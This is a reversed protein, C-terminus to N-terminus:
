LYVKQTDLMSTAGSYVWVSGLTRGYGSYVQSIKCKEGGAQAGILLGNWGAWIGPGTGDAYIDVLWGTTGQDFGPNTLPIPTAAQSVGATVWVNDIYLSGTVGSNTPNISVVQVALITGTAYFSIQMPKWGWIDLGGAGPQVVHNGTASITTSSDLEQLYLYVKQQKATESINTYVRAAATYWGARPVSFVQSIKGKQGPIQTIAISEQVWSEDVWWLTGASIGDGYKEFLWHTTDSSSTFDGYSNLVSLPAIALKSVYADYPSGNFSLSFAGPTIPFETSGTYGTLYVNGSTDIAISYGEDDRSGGLYTSYDLGTGTRNLKSVFIDRHFLVSRHYTTDWANLTTPFDPSETFGTIYANGTSDVAIKYAIDMDNGGLFTSYVLNTGTPNLKTVFIDEYGNTCTDWAGFTTPFDPSNANGTIYAYGAADIVIDFAEDYNNGGLYTSYVLATGSPNLKTVFANKPGSLSTDWAGFTTPFDNSDTEGTIYINGSTDIANGWAIDNSSGGLYTSYILGTGTSNLETVFVDDYGDLNTDWAGITTPFDTSATVGTIYANGSDDLAIKPLYDYSNGGLFTSYVLSTGNPNLKAVFVDDPSNISTDWAGFTIPFESSNTVGTIYANGSTDVAIEFAVESGTGGLYTSYVLGTGTPNLKCIFVDGSFSTDQSSTDWAGFTTPFDNSYTSGTIYANGSADVAIGYGGDSSNGGLFTSYVLQGAHSFSVISGLFSFVSISLFLLVF